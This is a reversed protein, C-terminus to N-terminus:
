EGILSKLNTSEENKIWFSPRNNWLKTKVKKYNNDTLLKNFIKNMKNAPIVNGNFSKFHQYHGYSITNFANALLLYKPKQNKIIYQIEDLCDHIHEFYESAFVLDIEPLDKYHNKLTFNFKNSMNECFAYQKTDKINTGFVDADPFIQKLSATTIGVGCGLDAIYKVNKLVSYISTNEDLSTPKLIDRLYIRSYARWCLWLDVFYYDHNYLDLNPNTASKYWEAVLFKQFPSEENDKQGLKILQRAYDIDIDNFQNYESLFDELLLNPKKDLINTSSSIM